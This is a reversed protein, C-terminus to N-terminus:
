EDFPGELDKILEEATFDITDEYLWDGNDMKTRAEEETDAEVACERTDSFKMTWKWIGM